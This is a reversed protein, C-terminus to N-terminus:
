RSQPSWSRSSNSNWVMAFEPKSNHIGSELGSSEPNGCCINAPNYSRSKPIWSRSPDLIPETRIGPELCNALNRIESKRVHPSVSNSDNCHTTAAATTPYSLFSSCCGAALLLLSSVKVNRGQLVMQVSVIISLCLVQLGYTM